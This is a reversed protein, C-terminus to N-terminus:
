QLDGTKIKEIQRLVNEKNREGIKRLKPCGAYVSWPELIQETVFSMAGIVTGEPIRVGPMIVSNAGVTVYNELIIDGHILHDKVDEYGPPVLGAIDNVFDDSCCIARVGSSLCGLDGIKFLSKKGGIISVNAAIHTSFGIEVRTSIYCFDDIISWDGITILEPYRIRSNPSIVIM